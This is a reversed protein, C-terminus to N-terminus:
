KEQHEQLANLELKTEIENLHTSYSDEVCPSLWIQSCTLSFLSFFIHFLVFCFLQFFIGILNFLCTPDYFVNGKAFISDVRTM